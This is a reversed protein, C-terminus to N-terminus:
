VSSRAMNMNVWPWVSRICAARSPGRDLMPTLPGHMPLGTLSNTFSRGLSWGFSKILSFGFSKMLSLGFSKM